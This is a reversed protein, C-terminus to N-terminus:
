FGSHFLGSLIGTIESRAKTVIRLKITTNQFHSPLVEATRAQNYSASEKLGTSGQERNDTADREGSDDVKQPM